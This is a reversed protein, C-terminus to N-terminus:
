IKETGQSTTIRNPIKILLSLEAALVNQGPPPECEWIPMAARYIMAREEGSFLIGLIPM